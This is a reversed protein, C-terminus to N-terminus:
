ALDVQLWGPDPPPSTVKVPRSGILAAVSVAKAMLAVAAMTAFLQSYRGILQRLHPRSDHLDIERDVSGGSGACAADTEIV